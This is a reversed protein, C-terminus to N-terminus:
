WPPSVVSLTGRAHDFGYAGSSQVLSLVHGNSVDRLSIEIGNIQIVRLLLDKHRHHAVDFTALPVAKGITKSAGDNHSTAM